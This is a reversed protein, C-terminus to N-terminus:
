FVRCVNNVCIGCIRSWAKTPNKHSNLSMLRRLVINLILKSKTVYNRQLSASFVLWACRFCFDMLYLFFFKQTVLLLFPPFVLLPLSKQTMLLCLFLFAIIFSKASCALALLFLFIILFNKQRVSLHLFYVLKMSKEIVCFTVVFFLLEPKTM